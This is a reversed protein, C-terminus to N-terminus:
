AKQVEFVEWLNVEIGELSKLPLVEQPGFVEGRNYIGDKEEL